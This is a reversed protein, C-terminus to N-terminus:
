NFRYHGELSAYNHNDRQTKAEKTQFVVAFRLSYRKYSAMGGFQHSLVFPKIESVIPGKDSRFMGGQITANYLQYTMQPHYYFFWETKLAEKDIVANWYSSQHFPNLKGLQIFIGQSVDTFTTGLTAKTVPSIQVSSNSSILGKAYEGHLNIGPETKLQYDWVWGWQDSNVNIIKHFSNQLGEALSAKGITGVSVGWQFLQSNKIFGSRQFKFYLYGAIARDIESPQYIKRSYPMYMKQGLDLDDVQKIINTRKSQHLKSYHLIIGNSYYRDKGQLLYRDNDTIISFQKTFGKYVSDKQGSALLCVSILFLCFLIAKISM